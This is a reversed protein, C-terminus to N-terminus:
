IRFEVDEEAASYVVKKQYLTKGPVYVGYRLIGYFKWIREKGDRLFYIRYVEPM